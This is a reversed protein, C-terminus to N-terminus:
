MRVGRTKNFQHPRPKQSRKPSKLDEHMNVKEEKEQNVHILRKLKRHGRRRVTWSVADKGARSQCYADAISFISTLLITPEECKNKNDGIPADM